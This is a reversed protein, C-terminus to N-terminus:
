FRDKQRQREKERLIESMRGQEQITIIVLSCKNTQQRFHFITTTPMMM